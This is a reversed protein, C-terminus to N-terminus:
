HEQDYNGDGDTYFKLIERAKEVDEATIDEPNSTDFIRMLGYLDWNSTMTEFLSEDFKEGIMWLIGEDRNTGIIIEV